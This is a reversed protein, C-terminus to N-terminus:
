TSMVTSEITSSNATDLTQYYSQINFITNEDRTSICFLHFIHVCIDTSQVLKATPQMSPQMSPQRSPKAFPQASPQMTPQSTPYSGKLARIYQAGYDAVYLNGTSADFSLGIPGSLSAYTGLVYTSGTAGSGIVTTVLGNSVMVKRVLHGNYDTVFVNNNSDIAIGVPYNFTALTGIGNASGAGGSGALTSVRGNTDIMRIRNNVRDAVFLNSYSDFLLGGPSSFQAFTSMGDAFSATGSGAFTSVIATTTIKRIVNNGFDSIFITGGGDVAIGIPNKFSAFTGIGNASGGATVGAFTTVVAASTIFRVLNIAFEVTYINGNVYHM